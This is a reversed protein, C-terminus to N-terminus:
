FSKAPERSNQMCNHTMTLLENKRKIDDEEAAKSRALKEYRGIYEKAAKHCIVVAEYFEKKVAFDPDKRDLKALGAEARKIMGDIGEKLLSEYDM